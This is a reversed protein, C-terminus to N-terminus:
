RLPTAEIRIPYQGTAASLEVPGQCKFSLTTDTGEGWEKVVTFVEEQSDITQHFVVGPGEFEVFVDGLRSQVRGVRVRISDLVYNRGTIYAILRQHYERTVQRRGIDNGAHTYVAKYAATFEQFWQHTASPQPGAPGPSCGLWFLFGLASLLRLM